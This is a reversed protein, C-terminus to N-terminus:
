NEYIAVEQAAGGQRGFTSVTASQTLLVEEKGLELKTKSPLNEVGNWLHQWAENGLATSTRETSWEGVHEPKIEAAVTGKVPIQKSALLCTGGSSLLSITTFTEKPPEKDGQGLESPQFVWDPKQVQQPQEKLEKENGEYKWVLHGFVKVTNNTGVLVACHPSTKTEPQNYAFELKAQGQQENNYIIGKVQVQSSTILVESVGGPLKSKLESERGGGRVEEPEQASIKMGKGQGHLARHFWFPGQADATAAAFLGLLLMALLGLLGARPKLGLV